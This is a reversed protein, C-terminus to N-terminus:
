QGPPGSSGPAPVAGLQQLLGLLDVEDWGEAIRGNAIRVIEIGTFTVQKHTAPVGAFEGEHTAQATWRCVVRDGEAILDDITARLDPFPARFATTLQRAGAPGRPLDPDAAGHLVYDPGILEDLVDLKGQGWAEEMWRRVLAKNEATSM